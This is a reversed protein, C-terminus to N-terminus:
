GVENENKEGGQIISVIKQIVGAISKVVPMRFVTEGVVADLGWNGKNLSYTINGQFYINSNNEIGKFSIKCSSLKFALSDWQLSFDLPVGTEVVTFKVRALRSFMELNVKLDKVVEQHDIKLTDIVEYLM